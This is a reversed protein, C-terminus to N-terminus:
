SRSMDLLNLGLHFDCASKFTEGNGMLQQLEEGAKAVNFAINYRLVELLKNIDRFDEKNKLPQKVDSLYSFIDEMYDVSQNPAKGSAM